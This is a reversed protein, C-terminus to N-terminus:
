NRSKGNDSEQFPPRHSGYGALDVTVHSFGLQNYREVLWQRSTGVTLKEIDDELVEIRAVPGQHRVRCKRVGMELLATEAQDIMRLRELTIPTGHPIRTALCSNAPKNWFDLGLDKALARVEQKGLGAEALPSFVGMEIGAALGPRFEHLDDANVGDVLCLKGLSSVAARCERWM